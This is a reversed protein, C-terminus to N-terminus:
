RENRIKYCDRKPVWVITQNLDNNALRWRETNLLEVKHEIDTSEIIRAKVPLTKVYESGGAAALILPVICIMGLDKSLLFSSM